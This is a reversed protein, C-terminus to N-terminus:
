LLKTHNKIQNAPKDGHRKLSPIELKGKVLYIMFVNTNYLLLIAESHLQRNVRLIAPHLNFANRRGYSSHYLTYVQLPDPCLLMQYIKLKLEMPLNLLSPTSTCAAM